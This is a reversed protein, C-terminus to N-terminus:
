FFHQKIDLDSMLVFFMLITLTILVLM